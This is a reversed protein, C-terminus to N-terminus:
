KKIFQQQQLFFIEMNKQIKASIISFHGIKLFEYSRECNINKLLSKQKLRKEPTEEDIDGFFFLIFATELLRFGLIEIESALRTALLPLAFYM